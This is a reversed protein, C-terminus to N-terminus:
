FMVDLTVVFPAPWDVLFAGFAVGALLVGFIVYIAKGHLLRYMDAYMLKLM